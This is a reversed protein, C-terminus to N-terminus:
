TVNLIIENVVIRNGVVHFHLRHSEDMKLVCM